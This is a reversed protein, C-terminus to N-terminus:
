LGRLFNFDFDTCYGSDGYSYYGDLRLIRRDKGSYIESQRRNLTYTSASTRSTVGAELTTTSSSLYVFSTVVGSHIWTSGNNFQIIDGYTYPSNGSPAYYNTYPLETAKPGKTTNSTLFSHLFTVGSWSSSRDNINRFYWGSGQIGSQGTDYVVAGGALIAHSVFNTCDYNGPITSFDYYSGVQNSNGTTPLKKSCNNM